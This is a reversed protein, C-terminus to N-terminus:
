VVKLFSVTELRFHKDEVPSVLPPLLTLPTRPRPRHHSTVSVVPFIYSVRLSSALKTSARATSRVGASDSRPARPARPQAAPRRSRLAWREASAARREGASGARGRTPYYYCKNVSVDFHFSRRTCRWM